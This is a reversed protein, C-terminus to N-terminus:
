QTGGNRNVPLYVYEIPADAANYTTSVVMRRGCYLCVYETGNQTLTQEGKVIVWTCLHDSALSIPTM